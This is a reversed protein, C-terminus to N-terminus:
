RRSRPRTTAVAAPEDRSTFRYVAVLRFDNKGVRTPEEMTIGGLSQFSEKGSFPNRTTGRTIEARGDWHDDFAFQVGFSGMAGVGFQTSGGPATIFDSEEDLVWWSGLVGATFYPTFSSKAPLMYRMVELSLLHNRLGGVDDIDLAESGDGNDTRYALDSGTFTYAFRFGTRPLVDVGAGIGLNYGGTSRLAREGGPDRQLMFRGNRTLGGNLFANWDSTLFASFFQTVADAGDQDQGDQDQASSTVPSAMLSCFLAAAALRFQQRM